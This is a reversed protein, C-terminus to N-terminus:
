RVLRVGRWIREEEGRGGGVGVPGRIVTAGHHLRLGCVEAYEIRTIPEEVPAECYNTTDEITTNDIAVVEEVAVEEVVEEEVESALEYCYPIREPMPPPPLLPPPPPYTINVTANTLNGITTNTTNLLLLSTNTANTTLNAALLGMADDDILSTGNLCIVDRPLRGAFSSCTSNGPLCPRMEEAVTANTINSANVFASTLLSPRQKHHQDHQRRRNGCSANSTTPPPALLSYFAARMAIADLTMIISRLARRLCSPTRKLRRIFSRIVITTAIRITRINLSFPGRVQLHAIVEHIGGCGNLGRASEAIRSLFAADEDEDEAYVLDPPLGGGPSSSPPAAHMLSPLSPPPHTLPVSPFPLTPSLSSPLPQLGHLLPAPSPISPHPASLKQPNTTAQQKGAHSRLFSYQYM